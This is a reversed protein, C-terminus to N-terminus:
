DRDPRREYTMAVGAIERVVVSAAALGFAGTVFGLTGEIQLRDDCSHPRDEKPPCVCQFGGAGLDYHLATPKSPREVSFVAPVGVPGADFSWGYQKRLIARVDRAFPDNYTEALDAVRIRTPDLRAAAGMSSVVRLGLRRARDLLHCKATINDIADVVFAPRGPAADADWSSPLLEEANEANYFLERPEAALQPHIARLREAMVEVKPHGVTHKLAHLQRNSNTVCVDDFDVLTLRGVGARALAELCFSGVGGVGFVVVHARLLDAMARDGLLRATRDFRRQQKPLTEEPDLTPYVPRPEAGKRPRATPGPLASPMIRPSGM